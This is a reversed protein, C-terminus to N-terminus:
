AARQAQTLTKDGSVKQEFFRFDHMEQVNQSYVPDDPNLKKAYYWFYHLGKCWKDVINKLSDHDLYFMEYPMELRLQGFEIGYVCKEVMDDWTIPFTIDTVCESNEYVEAFCPYLRTKDLKKIDM